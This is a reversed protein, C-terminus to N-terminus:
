HGTLDYEFSFNANEYHECEYLNILLNEQFFILKLFAEKTYIYMTLHLLCLSIYFFFKRELYSEMLSKCAWKSGKQQYLVLLSSGICTQCFM